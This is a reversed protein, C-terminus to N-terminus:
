GGQELGLGHRIGEDDDGMAEKLAPVGFIEADDFSHRGRIATRKDNDLWKQVWRDDNGTKGDKKYWGAGLSHADGYEILLDDPFASKKANVGGTTEPARQRTAPVKSSLGDLRVNQQSSNKSNSGGVRADTVVDSPALSPHPDAISSATSSATSTKRKPEVVRSGGKLSGQVMQSGGKLRRVEGSKRGGEASKTRWESQKLRQEDLEPSTIKDGKVRFLKELAPWLARFEDPTVRLIRALNKEDLPLSGELWIYSMLTWYAGFEELTMAAVRPDMLVDRPYYQFAPAKYKNM